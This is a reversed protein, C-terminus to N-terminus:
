LETTTSDQQENTINLFQLYLERIHYKAYIKMRFIVIILVALTILQYVYYDFNYYVLSLSLGLILSTAIGRFLSFDALFIEATNSVNNNNVIVNISRNIPDWYKKNLTTMNEPLEIETIDYIKSKLLNLQDTNILRDAKDRIIWFKPEGGILLWIIKEFIRGIIQILHGVIYSFLFLIGFFGISITYLKEINKLEPILFYIIVFFVIGPGIIGSIEYLTLERKM